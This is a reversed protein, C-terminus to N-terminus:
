LIDFPDQVVQIRGLMTSPDELVLDVEKASRKRSCPLEEERDM